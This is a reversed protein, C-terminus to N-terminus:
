ERRLASSDLADVEIEVLYGPGILGAIGVMTSAPRIDAFTEHHARGVAEHNAEIDVVYMRTRVVDALSADLAELALRIRELAAIAQDYADVPPTGDTGVGLTGSVSIHGGVRVARTYGVRDEWETHSSHSRRDSVPEGYRTWGERL